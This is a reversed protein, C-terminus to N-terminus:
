QDKRGSTIDFIVPFTENSIRSITLDFGGVGGPDVPQSFTSRVGKMPKGAKSKVGDWPGGSPPPGLSPRALTSMNKPNNKRMTKQANIHFKNQILTQLATAGMLPKHKRMEGDNQMGKELM